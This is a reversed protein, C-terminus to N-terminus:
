GRLLIFANEEAAPAAVQRQSAATARGIPTTLRRLKRLVTNAQNQSGLTHRQANRRVNMKGAQRVVQEQEPGNPPM